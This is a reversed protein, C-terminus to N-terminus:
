VIINQKEDIEALKQTIILYHSEMFHSKNDSAPWVLVSKYWLIHAEFAQM